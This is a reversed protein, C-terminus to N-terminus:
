RSAKLLEVIVSMAQISADKSTQTSPQLSRREIESSTREQVSNTPIIHLYPVYAIHPADQPLSSCTQGPFSLTCYRHSWHTVSISVQPAVPLVHQSSLYPTYRNNTISTIPRVLYATVIVCYVATLIPNPDERGYREYVAAVSHPHMQLLASPQAAIGVEEHLRKAGFKEMMQVKACGRRHKEDHAASRPANGV